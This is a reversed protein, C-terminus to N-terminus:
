AAFILDRYDSYWQIGVTAYSPKTFEKWIINIKIFKLLERAPIIKQM